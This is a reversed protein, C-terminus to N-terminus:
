SSSSDLSGSVDRAGRLNEKGGGSGSGSGSSPTQSGDSGLSVV